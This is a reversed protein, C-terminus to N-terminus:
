EKKFKFNIEAQEPNFEKVLSVFMRSVRLVEARLKKVEDQLLGLQVVATQAKSDIQKLQLAMAPNTARRLELNEEELTRIRRRLEAANINAM